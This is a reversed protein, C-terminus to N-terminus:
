RDRVYADDSTRRLFAADVSGNLLADHYRRILGLWGPRTRRDTLIGTM